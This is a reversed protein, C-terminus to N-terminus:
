RFGKLGFDDLNKQAYNDGLFWGHNRYKNM